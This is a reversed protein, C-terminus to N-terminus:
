RLAHVRIYQNSHSYVNLYIVEWENTIYIVVTPLIGGTGRSYIPFISLNSTGAPHVTGGVHNLYGRGIQPSVNVSRM